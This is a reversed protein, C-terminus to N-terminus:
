RVISMSEVVEQDSETLVCLFHLLVKSMESCLIEHGANYSESIHLVQNSYAVITKPTQHTTTFPQYSNQEPHHPLPLRHYDVTM